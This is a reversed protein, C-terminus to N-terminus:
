RGALAVYYPEMEVCFVFLIFPYHFHGVKFHFFFFFGERNTILFLM